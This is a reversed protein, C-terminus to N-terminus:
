TLLRELRHATRPTLQTSTLRIVRDKGLVHDFDRARDAGFARPDDHFARSDLEVILHADPWYADVEHGNVVHNTLPRPLRHKALLELFREELDSKTIQPERHELTQVATRLRRAGRRQSPVLSANLLRLEAARHVARELRHAELSTALDLLTRMPTTLPLGDKTTIEDPHLRGRHVHIARTPRSQRLTTVDIPGSPWRILDWVAAATRHSVVGNTTLVAAWLRALGALLAHGLAYVGPHVRHLLGRRLRHDIADDGLGVTRLQARSVVGHQRAALQAVRADFSGREPRSIQGM